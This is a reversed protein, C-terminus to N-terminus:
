PYPDLSTPTLGWCYALTREALKATAAKYRDTELIRNRIGEKLTTDQDGPVPVM